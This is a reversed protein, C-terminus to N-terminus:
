SGTADRQDQCERIQVGNGSEPIGQKTWPRPLLSPGSSLFKGALWLDVEVHLPCSIGEPVAWCAQWAMAVWGPGHRDEM